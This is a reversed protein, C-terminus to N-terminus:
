HTTKKERKSLLIFYFLNMIFLRQNKTQLLLCASSLLCHHWYANWLKSLEVRRTAAVAYRVLELGVKKETRTFFQLLFQFILFFFVYLILFHFYLQAHTTTNTWLICVYKTSKLISVSTIRFGAIIVNGVSLTSNM